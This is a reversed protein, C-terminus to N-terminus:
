CWYAAEKLFQGFYCSGSQFPTSTCLAISQSDAGKFKGLLASAPLTRAKQWKLFCGDVEGGAGDAKSFCLRLLILSGQLLPSQSRKGQLCGVYPYHLPTWRAMSLALCDLELSGPHQPYLALWVAVAAVWPHRPLPLLNRPFLPHEDGKRPLPAPGGIRRM